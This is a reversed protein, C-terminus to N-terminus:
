QLTAMRYDTYHKKLAIINNKNNFSLVTHDKKKLEEIHRIDVQQQVILLNAKILWIMIFTTQTKSPENSRGSKKNCQVM